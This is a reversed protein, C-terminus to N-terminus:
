TDQTQKRHVHEIETNTARVKYTTTPIQIEHTETTRHHTTTRCKQWYIDKWREGSGHIQTPRMYKIHKNRKELGTATSDAIVVALQHLSIPMINNFKSERSSKLLQAMIPMIACHVAARSWEMAIENMGWTSEANRCEQNGKSKIKTSKAWNKSAILM